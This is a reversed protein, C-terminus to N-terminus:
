SCNNKVDYVVEGSDSVFSPLFTKRLLSQSLNINSPIEGQGSVLYVYDIGQQELFECVNRKNTYTAFITSLKKRRDSDNYGLSWAFYGYDLYQKRGVLTVPTYLYSNTVFVSNKPTNNMIWNATEVRQYDNIRYKQDNIISFADVVGSFITLMFILSGLIKLLFSGRLMQIVFAAMGLNLIIIFFSVLKHNNILDPSLQICNAVVFLFYALLLLKRYNKTAFFLFLPLFIFYLGLNFFWYRLITWIRGDAALFGVKWVLNQQSAETSTLVVVLSLMLSAFYIIKVRRGLQQSRNLWFWGIVFCLLIMLGAQHLLPLVGFVVPVLLYYIKKFKKEGIVVMKLLPWFALMVLGYSLALHRQNTYVNWNWFASVLKGDWPGFSAFTTQSPISMFAQWTWGTVRFYEVFSFTGNFLFLIVALFGIKRKGFLLLGYQYIMWLLLTMGIISWFNVAFAFDFGLKEVMAVLWYFFYHYRIPEGPFQPYEVPYNEGVSFSRILPLHAGFDSFLKSALIIQNDEYALTHGMLWYSFSFCVLLVFVDAIVMLNRSIIKSTQNILNIKM